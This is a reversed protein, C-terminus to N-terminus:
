HLLVKPLGTNTTSFGSITVEDNNKFDHPQTAYGVLVGTRGSQSFEIDTIQKTSVAVGTVTVGKVRSVKAAAQDEM